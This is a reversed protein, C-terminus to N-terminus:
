AASRPWPRWAGPDPARPIPPFEIRPLERLCFVFALLLPPSMFLLLRWISDAHLELLPVSASAAMLAACVALPLGRRACAAWRAGRHRAHFRPPPEALTSALHELAAVLGARAEQARAPAAGRLGMTARWGGASSAELRSYRLGLVALLDQPLDLREGGPASVRLAAPYGRVAPVTVALALPGVRADAGRLRPPSGIRVVHHCALMWGEGRVIQDAAPVANLAALLAAPDGGDIELIATLGDGIPQRRRLTWGEGAPDDLTLSGTQGHADAEPVAGQQFVIRRGARDSAALDVRLGARAYPAVVALM